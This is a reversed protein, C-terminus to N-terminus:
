RTNGSFPSPWPGWCGLFYIVLRAGLAAAAWSMTGAWNVEFLGLIDVHLEPSNGSGQHAGHQFTAAAFLNKCGRHAPLVQIGFIKPSVGRNQLVSLSVTCTSSASPSSCSLHCLFASIEPNLESLPNSDGVRQAPEAEPKWSLGRSAALESKADSIDGLSERRTKQVAAFLSLFVSVVNTVWM